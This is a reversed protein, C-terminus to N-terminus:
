TVAGREVDSSGDSGIELVGTSKGTREALSTSKLTGPRFAGNSKGVYEPDEV